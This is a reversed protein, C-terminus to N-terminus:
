ENMRFHTPENHQLKEINILIKQKILATIFHEHAPSITDTQWLNWGFILQGTNCFTLNNITLCPNPHHFGSMTM